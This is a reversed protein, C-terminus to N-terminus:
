EREYHEVFAPLYREEFCLYHVRCLKRLLEALRRTELGPTLEGKLRLLHFYFCQPVFM